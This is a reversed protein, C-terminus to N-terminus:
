HKTSHLSEIANRGNVFLHVEYLKGHGCEDDVTDVIEVVQKTQDSAILRKLAEVQKLDLALLRMTEIGALRCRFAVRPLRTFERRLKELTHLPVRETRFDDVCEILTGQPTIDLIRSRMWSGGCLSACFDGVRFKNGFLDRANATTNINNNNNDITIIGGLKDSTTNNTCATLSGNSMYSALTDRELSKTANKIREYHDNMAAHLKDYAKLLDVRQCVFESPSFTSPMVRVAIRM